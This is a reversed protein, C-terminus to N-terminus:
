IINRPRALLASLAKSGEMAFAFNPYSDYTMFDLKEKVLKHNDLM